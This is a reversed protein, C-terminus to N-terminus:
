IEDLYIWYNKLYLSFIWFTCIHVLSEITRNPQLELSWLHVSQLCGTEFNMSINSYKLLYSPFGLYGREWLSPKTKELKRM